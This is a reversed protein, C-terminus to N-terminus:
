APVKPRRHRKAYRAQELFQAEWEPTTPQGTFDRVRRLSCRIYRELAREDAIALMVKYEDRWGWLHHLM